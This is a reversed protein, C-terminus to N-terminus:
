QPVFGMGLLPSAGAKQKGEPTMLRPMSSFGGNLEINKWAIFLGHNELWGCKIVGSPLWKRPPRKRLCRLGFSCQMLHNGVASRAPHLRWFSDLIAPSKGYPPATPTAIFEM